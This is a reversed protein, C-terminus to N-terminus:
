KSHVIQKITFTEVKRTPEQVAKGGLLIPLLARYRPTGSWASRAPDIMLSEFLWALPNNFDTGSLMGVLVRPPLAALKDFNENKGEEAYEMLQSLAFGYPDDLKRSAPDTSSAYLMWSVLANGTAGVERLMTKM